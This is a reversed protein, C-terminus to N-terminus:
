DDSKRSNRVEKVVVIRRKYWMVKFNNQHNHFLSIGLYFPAFRRQFSFEAAACM